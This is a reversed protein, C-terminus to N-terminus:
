CLLTLLLASLGQAVNSKTYSRTVNNVDFVLNM